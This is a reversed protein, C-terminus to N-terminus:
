TPCDKKGNRVAARNVNIGCGDQLSCAGVQDPLVALHDPRYNRAIYDYSRGTKPDKMYSKAPENETYLGTSLEIPRNNLLSNYVRPDVKRTREEDFWAEARLKGREYRDNRIVGIGQRDLVEPDHASVHQGNSIPHYVTIPTGHWSGASAQCEEEPYYLAGRSGSLVGPVILSADAVLFPRGNLTARRVRGMGTANILLMGM